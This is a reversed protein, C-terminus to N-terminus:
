TNLWKWFKGWITKPQKSHRSIVPKQAPKRNSKRTELATKQVQQQYFQEKRKKRVKLEKEKRQQAEQEERKLRAKKSRLRRAEREEPTEGSKNPKTNERKLKGSPRAPVEDSKGSENMKPTPLEIKGLVKLGPLQIKPARIVDEPSADNERTGKEEQLIEEEEEPVIESQNVEEQLIEPLAVTEPVEIVEPDMEPSSQPDPSPATSFAARVKNEQDSDLKEHPHGTLDIGEGALFTVIEPVTTNLNRALQGIRM